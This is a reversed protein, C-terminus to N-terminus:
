NGGFGGFVIRAYLGNMNFEPANNITANSTTRWDDSSPTFM